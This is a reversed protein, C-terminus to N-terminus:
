YLDCMDHRSFVQGELRRDVLFSKPRDIMMVIISSM